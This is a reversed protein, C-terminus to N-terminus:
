AASVREVDEIRARILRDCRQALDGSMGARRLVIEADRLRLADCLPEAYPNSGRDGGVARVLGEAPTSVRVTEREGAEGLSRLADLLAFTAAHRAGEALLGSVERVERRGESDVSLAYAYAALRETAMEADVQIEVRRGDLPKPKAPPPKRVGTQSPEKPATASPKPPHNSVAPESPLIANEGGEELAKVQDNLTRRLHVPGWTEVLISLGADLLLEPFREDRVLEPHEEDLRDLIAEAALAAEALRRELAQGDLIVLPSDGNRGHERIAAARDGLIACVDQRDGSEVLYGIAALWLGSLFSRRSAGRKEAVNVAELISLNLVAAVPRRGTGNREVLAAEM